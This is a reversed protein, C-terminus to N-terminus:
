ITWTTTEETINKTAATDELERRLMNDLESISTTTEKRASTDNSAASIIVFNLSSNDLIQYHNQLTSLYSLQIKQTPPDQFVPPYM